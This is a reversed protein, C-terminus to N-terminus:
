DFKVSIINTGRQIEGTGELKMNKNEVNTLVFPVETSKGASRIMDMDFQMILDGEKIKQGQKVFVEFPRGQLEVTDLGVHILVEIGNESKMAVAHLSDMVMEVTGSFPAYVKEEKPLILIGAGLVGNAFAEDSCESLEKVEGTIPLKVIEMSVNTKSIEADTQTDTESINSVADITANEVKEDVGLLLMVATSVVFCIILGIIYYLMTAGAFAPITTLGGFVFAYAKVGMGGMFAGGLAGGIFAAVLPKKYKVGVGYIAPETIGAFFISLLASMSFQKMKQDKTKLFTGFTAGAMGFNTAATLPVIYDFGALSLNQIMIPNVAWHIGFIVLINWCGGVVAGAIWGNLEILNNVVWAIGNGIYVGLPGVVGATLPVMVLLSILPVFCLHVTTPIIKYLLKELKSYIFISLVAPIVTSSYTMLVIPIGFFSAMAGNGTDGMLNIFDPMILAGMIAAAIYQNCDFKKAATFALLIPFFYFVATSAVTLIMYTSGTDSLLGLQTCLLVFGRLLGSGALLPLLPTFLASVTEMFTAIIGKKEEAIEEKNRNFNTGEIVEKYVTGVKAGIVVQFQGGKKVVSIVGDLNEIETQMAKTDDKLRFRLRTACHAVSNVNEEGGVLKLIKKGLNM